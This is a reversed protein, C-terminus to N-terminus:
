GKGSVPTGVPTSWNQNRGILTNFGNTVSKGFGTGSLSSALDQVASGLAQGSALSNANANALLAGSNGAMSAATTSAGAMAAAPNYTPQGYPSIMNRGMSIGAAVAGSSPTLTPGLGSSVSGNYIASGVPLPTSYNNASVLNRQNVASPASTAMGFVDVASRANPAGLIQDIGAGTVNAIESLARERQGIQDNVNSSLASTKGQIYNLAEDYARQRADSYLSSAQATIDRRRRNAQTSEDMGNRILGAENVSAVRDVARDVDSQYEGQRRSVEQEIDAMSLVPMTPMDGMSNLAGSLAGRMDEIKSLADQRYQLDYNREAFAQDRAMGYQNVVFEREANKLESERAFRRLDEDREGSAVAQAEELEALARQREASTIAQNQLLQELEFARQQAANRDVEVQRDILYQRENVVQQKYAELEDLNFQFDSNSYGRNLAEISRQYDLESNRDQREQQAFQLQQNAIREQSARDAAAQQSAAKTAKSSSSAGLLASGVGLIASFIM